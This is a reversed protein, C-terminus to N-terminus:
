AKDTLLPGVFEAATAPLVVPILLAVDVVTFRDDVDYVRDDPYVRWGLEEPDLDSIADLHLKVYKAETTVAASGDPLYIEGTGEFLRRRVRTIRGRATLETDLPVPKHFQTSLEVAVGWITSDGQRQGANIARGIVEDLIGTAVGGHMRGPYGQHISRGTFRALVEPQGSDSVTDYFTVRVSADNRIGCIFCNYSNPQKDM